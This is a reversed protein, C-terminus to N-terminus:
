CKGYQCLVGKKKMSSKTFSFMRSFGCKNLSSLIGKLFSDNNFIEFFGLICIKLDKNFFDQM